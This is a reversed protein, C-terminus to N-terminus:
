RATLSQMTRQKKRISQSRLDHDRVPPDNRKNSKESVDDDVQMNEVIKEVSLNSTRKIFFDEHMQMLTAIQTDKRDVDSASSQNNKTPASPTPQSASTDKFAAFESQLVSMQQTFWSNMTVLEANKRTLIDNQKLIESRDRICM